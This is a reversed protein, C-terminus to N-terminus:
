HLLGFVDFQLVKTVQLNGLICSLDSIGNDKEVVSAAIKGDKDILM